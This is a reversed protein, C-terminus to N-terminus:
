PLPVSPKKDRLDENGARKMPNIPFYPLGRTSRAENATMIFATSFQNFVCANGLFQSPRDPSLTQGTERNLFM